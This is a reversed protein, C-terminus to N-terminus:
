WVEKWTITPSGAVSTVRYTSLPPIMAVGTVGYPTGGVSFNCSDYYQQNGDISISIDIPTPASAGPLVLQMTAFMVRGTSNTYTTSLARSASVDHIAAFQAPAGAVAAGVFATSAAQTTNTGPSATPTTPTGTLAPSALPALLAEAAEARTTETAVATTINAPTAKTAEAAIARTTEASIATANVGEATTARTTEASIAAANVGDATTRASAETTIASARATAETTIATANIGDATTRASAEASVASARASAEATVAAARATAEATIATANAAEATTARTTEVAIDAATALTGPANPLTFTYNGSQAFITNFLGTTSVRPMADFATQISLFEARMNASLGESGTGPNGSATYFPNSM